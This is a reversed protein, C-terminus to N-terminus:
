EDVVRGGPLVRYGAIFAPEASEAWREAVQRVARAEAQRAEWDRARAEKAAEEKARQREVEATPPHWQFNADITGADRPAMDGPGAQDEHERCHWRKAFSTLMGGGPAVGVRGCVACAAPMPGGRRGSNRADRADIDKSRELGIAERARDLVERRGAPGAHELEDLLDGVRLKGRNLAGWVIQETVRRDDGDLTERACEVVEGIPGGRDRHPIRISWTV